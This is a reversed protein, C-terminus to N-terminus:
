HKLIQHSNQKSNSNRSSYLEMPYVKNKSKNSDNSFTRKRKVHTFNNVEITETLDILNHNIEKPNLISKKEENKTNYKAHQKKSELLLNIKFNDIESRLQLSPKISNLSVSKHCVPCKLFSYYDYTQNIIKNNYCTECINSHCCSTTHANEMLNNCIKCKYKNPVNKGNIQFLDSKFHIQNSYTKNDPKLEYYCKGTKEGKENKVEIKNLMSKPIGKHSPLFTTNDMESNYKPYMRKKKLASRISYRDRKGQRSVHNLMQGIRQQEDYNPDSRVLVQNNNNVRKTNTNIPNNQNNKSVLRREPSVVKWMHRPLTPPLIHIIVSTNKPIYENMDTYDENTIANTIKLDFNIVSGIPEEQFLRKKLNDVSIDTVHEFILRSSKKEGVYKYYIVSM